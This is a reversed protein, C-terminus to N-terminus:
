KDTDLDLQYELRFTMVAEGWGPAGPVKQADLESLLKITTGALVHDRDDDELFHGCLAFLIQEELAFFGLEPHLLWKEDSTSDTELRTSPIVDLFRVARANYNGGGLEGEQEAMLRRVRLFVVWDAQFNPRTNSQTIVVRETPLDLREMLLSKVLPLIVSMSSPKQKPM